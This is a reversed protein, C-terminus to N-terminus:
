RAPANDPDTPPVRGSRVYVAFDRLGYTDGDESERPLVGLFEVIVDEGRRLAAADLIGEGSDLKGALGKASGTM